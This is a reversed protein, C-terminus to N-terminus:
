EGIEDVLKLTIQGVSEEGEVAISKEFNYNTELLRFCFSPLVSKFDGALLALNM